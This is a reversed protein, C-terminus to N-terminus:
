CLLGSHSTVKCLRLHIKAWCVSQRHIAWCVHKGKKLSNRSTRVLNQPIHILLPLGVNQMKTNRKKKAFAEEPPLNCMTTRTGSCHTSHPVGSAWCSLCVYMKLASPYSTRLYSHPPWKISFNAPFPM